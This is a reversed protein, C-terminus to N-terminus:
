AESQLLSHPLELLAYGGGFPSLTQPGTHDAQVLLYTIVQWIRHDFEVEFQPLFIKTSPMSQPFLKM